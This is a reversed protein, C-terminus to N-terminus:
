PTGPVIDTSAIRAPLQPRISGLRIVTHDATVEMQLGLDIAIKAAAASASSVRLAYRGYPVRDFLFFGDFDTRATGAVKGTSDVLELDVGEFGLEGSKILAGEISGGVVLGIQVDAPIGPRPVVVQLAKEPTLMPDDLSTV